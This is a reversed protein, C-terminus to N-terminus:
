YSRLLEKTDILASIGAKISKKNPTEPIGDM